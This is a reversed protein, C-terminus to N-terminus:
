ESLKKELQKVRKLLEPLRSASAEIRRALGIERAPSGLVIKGAEISHSVGSQAAVKVGDGINLHGVVGVQGALVVGNGIKTSGAVGVQSVLISFAGIQVNHAVQVLNDIKTGHGIRTPGLAGRDISCNSGIEVEDGIEVWGIQKVKKIGQEHEAFGFGDSGIVTSSHVIVNDGIRCGNMIMVGPYFLCNKGISVDKGIYISSILQSNEGIAAGDCVHCLPGIGASSDIRATQAIVSSEHIGPEVQRPTPYLIDLCLAFALYPNNHRICPKGASPTDEDLILASANTSEVFKAYSSNAVFSIEGETAIEIPAVSGILVRDDGELRGGIKGALEALSIEVLSNSKKL